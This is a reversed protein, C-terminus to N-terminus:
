RVPSELISEPRPMPVSSGLFNPTLFVVLVFLFIGELLTLSARFFSFVSLLARKSALETRFSCAVWGGSFGVVVVLEPPFHSIHVLLFLESM